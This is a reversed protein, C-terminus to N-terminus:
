RRPYGDTILLNITQSQINDLDLGGIHQMSYNNFDVLYLINVLGYSIRWYVSGLYGGALYCCFHIRKSPGIIPEDKDNVMANEPSQTLEVEKKQFPKVLQM